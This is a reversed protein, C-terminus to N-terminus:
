IIEKIQTVCWQQLFTFRKLRVKITKLLQEETCFKTICDDAGMEMVKRIDAQNDKDIVVILPTIATYPQERLALLYNQNCDESESVILDSIILDPLESQVKSLGIASNEAVIVDFGQTELCKLFIKCIQLQSEILLIKTM